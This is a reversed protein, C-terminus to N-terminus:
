GHQDAGLGAPQGAGSYIANLELATSLPIREVVDDHVRVIPLPVVSYQLNLRFKADSERRRVSLKALDDPM